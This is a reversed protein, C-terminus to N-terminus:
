DRLPNPLFEFVRSFSSEGTYSFQPFHLYPILLLGAGLVIECGNLWRKVSGLAILLATLVFYIPNFTTPLIAFALLVNRPLTSSGIDAFRERTYAYLGIFAFMLFVNAALLLAWEAPCNAVIMVGRALLPYAPFFAVDSRQAPDYHYGSDCISKYHMGDFRFFSDLINAPPVSNLRSPKLFDNGFSMGLLVVVSSVYYFALGILVDAAHTIKPTPETM